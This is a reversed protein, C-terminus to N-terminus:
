LTNFTELELNSRLSVGLKLVVDRKSKLSASILNFCVDDCVEFGWSTGVFVSICSCLDRPKLPLQNEKQDRFINWKIWFAEEPIFVSPLDLTNLWQKSQWRPPRGTLWPDQSQKPDCIAHIPTSSGLFPIWSRTVLPRYNLSPQELQVNIVEM